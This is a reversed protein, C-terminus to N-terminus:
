EVELKVNMKIQALEEKTYGKAFENCASELEKVKQAKGGWQSGISSNVNADGMRSVKTPDGGAIQDPNHLAAQTKIWNSAEEKAEAYSMGNKMNSAIRSQYAKERAMRQAENGELSRGSGTEEKRQQYAERNAMNQGVTQSNLGREQAKLQREFEKKDMGEPCKFKIVVPPEMKEPLEKEIKNEGKGYSKTNEENQSDEIENRASTSKETDDTEKGVEDPLDEMESDGVENPLDKVESKEVENPLDSQSEVSESVESMSKM